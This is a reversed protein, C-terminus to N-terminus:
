LWVSSAVVRTCLNTLSASVEWRREPHATSNRLARLPPIAAQGSPHAGREASGSSLRATEPWRLALLAEPRNGGSVGCSDATSEM